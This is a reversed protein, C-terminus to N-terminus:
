TTVKRTIASTINFRSAPIIMYYDGDDTQLGVDYWYRGFDLTITDEPSLEVVYCDNENDYQATKSIVFSDSKEDRKVGFRVVDNNQPEYATGDSNTIRIGIPLSTGRPINIENSNATKIM